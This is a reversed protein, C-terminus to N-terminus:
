MLNPLDASMNSPVAAMLLLRSLSSSGALMLNMITVWALLLVRCRPYVPNGPLLGASFSRTTRTSMPTQLVHCVLLSKPFYTQRFCSRIAINQEQPPNSLLWCLAKRLPMHWFSLFCFDSTADLSIGAVHLFVFTSLSLFLTSLCTGLSATSEGSMSLEYTM